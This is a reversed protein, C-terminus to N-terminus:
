TARLCAPLKCACNCEHGFYTGGPHREAATMWRRLSPIWLKRNQRRLCPLRGSSASWNVSFSPNDGLFYVLDPNQSPESEYRCRYLNDLEQVARQERQNLVYSLDSWGAAYTLGRVRCSEMAELQVELEPASLYDRPRTSHMTKVAKSVQAYLERPDFLLDYHGSLAYIIYTRPRSVGSHGCDAMEVFIQFRDYMDQLLSDLVDIDLDQSVCIGFYGVARVCSCDVSLTICM